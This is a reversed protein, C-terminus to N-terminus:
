YLNYILSNLIGKLEETDHALPIKYSSIKKKYWNYQAHSGGLFGIVQMKATLAAEIGASSDEIVICRAPEYGMKKAAYLFLDPEPKGKPVQQSTFIHENSFFNLLNTIELAKTVRERSSSSAVCSKINRRTIDEVVSTLLPVLENEFTKVILQAHETATFLDPSVLIGSEDFIIQCTDILNRGSFKKISEELSINYGLEKLSNLVTQHALIESDVLVGDCDFIVCVNM